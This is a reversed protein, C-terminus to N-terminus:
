AGGGVWAGLWGGVTLFNLLTWTDPGAFPIFLVTAGPHDDLATRPPPDASQSDPRYIHTVWLVELDAALLM